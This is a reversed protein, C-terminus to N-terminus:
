TKLTPAGHPRSVATPSEGDPRTCDDELRSRKRAPVRADVLEHMARLVDGHELSAEKRREEVRPTISAPSTTATAVNGPHDLRRNRLAIRSAPSLSSSRDTRNRM